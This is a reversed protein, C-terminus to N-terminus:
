ECVERSLAVAVKQKGSGDDITQLSRYHGVRRWRRYQRGELKGAEATTWVRARARSKGIQHLFCYLLKGADGVEEGGGVGRKNINDMSPKRLPDGVGLSTASLLLVQQCFQLDGELDSKKSPSSSSTVTFGSRTRRYKNHWESIHPSIM